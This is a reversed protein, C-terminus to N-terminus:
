TAKLEDVFHTRTVRHITGDDYEVFVDKNRVALCALVVATTDDWETVRFYRPETSLIM